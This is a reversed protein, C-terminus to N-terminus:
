EHWAREAADADLGLAGMAERWAPDGPTGLESAIEELAERYRDAVAALVVEIRRADHRESDCPRGHRNVWIELRTETEAM